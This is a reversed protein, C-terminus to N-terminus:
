EAVLYQCLQQVRGRARFSCPSGVAMSGPCRHLAPKATFLATFAEPDYSAIRRADLDDSEMRVALTFPGTFAWEM